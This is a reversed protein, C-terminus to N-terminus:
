VQPRSYAVLVSARGSERVGSNWDLELICRTLASGTVQGAQAGWQLDACQLPSQIRQGLSCARTWLASSPFARVSLALTSRPPLVTPLM